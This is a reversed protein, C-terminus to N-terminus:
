VENRVQHSYDLNYSHFGGVQDYLVVCPINCAAPTSIFARLAISCQYPIWSHPIHPLPFFSVSFSFCNNEKECMAEQANERSVLDAGKLLFVQLHSRM